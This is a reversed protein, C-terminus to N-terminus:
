PLRYYITLKPRLYEYGAAQQRNVFGVYGDPGSTENSALIMVGYNTAPNTLWSQVMASDIEFTLKNDAAASYSVSNSCAGTEHNGAILSWTVATEAWSKNIRYAQFSPMTGISGNPTLTLYAKEVTVNVPVIDTIDFKILARRTVGSYCGTNIDFNGGFNSGANGSDIFTDSTQSYVTSPYFGDKFMMIMLDNVPDVPTAPNSGCSVFLLATLLSAFVFLKKM